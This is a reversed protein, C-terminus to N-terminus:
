LQGIGNRTILMRLQLPTASYNPKLFAVQIFVAKSDPINYLSDTPALATTSTVTLTPSYSVTRSSSSDEVLFTNNPYCNTTSSLSSFEVARDVEPCASLVAYIENLQRATSYSKKISNYSNAVGIVVIPFIVCALVLEVITFGSRSAAIEHHIRKFWRM